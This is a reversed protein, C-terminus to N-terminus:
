PNNKFAKCALTIVTFFCIFFLVAFVTDCWKDVSNNGNATLVEM